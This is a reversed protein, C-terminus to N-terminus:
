LNWYEMIHTAQLVTYLSLKDKILWEKVISKLVCDRDLYTKDGTLLKDCWFYLLKIM